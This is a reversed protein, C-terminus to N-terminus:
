NAPVAPYWLCSADVFQGSAGMLEASRLPSSSLFDTRASLRRPFGPTNERQNPPMVTYNWRVLGKIDCVTRQPAHRDDSGFQVEDPDGRDAAPQFHPEGVGISKAPIRERNRRQRLLVLSVERTTGLVDQQRSLVVKRGGDGIEVIGVGHGGVQTRRMIAVVLHQLANVDTTAELVIGLPQFLQEVEVGLIIAAAEGALLCFVCPLLWRM